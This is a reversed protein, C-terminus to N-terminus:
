YYFDLVANTGYKNHPQISAGLKTYDGLCIDRHGLSPVGTDILLSLVIDLADENGYDCCEGFYYKKTNCDTRQRQHGVYSKIGSSYAHCRASNYCKEDPYLLAKPQMNKLRKVLSQYYYKDNAVAENGELEAYIKLVNKAFLEPYTRVLNLIYIIEREMPTMYKANAATNCKLYEPKNWEASFDALPSVEQATAAITALGCLALTCIM